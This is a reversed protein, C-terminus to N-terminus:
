SSLCYLLEIHGLESAEESQCTNNEASCLKSVVKVIFMMWIIDQLDSQATLSM